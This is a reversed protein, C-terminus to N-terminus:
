KGVNELKATIQCTVPCKALLDIEMQACIELTVQAYIAVQKSSVAIRQASM